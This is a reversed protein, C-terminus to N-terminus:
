RHHRGAGGCARRSGRVRAASERSAHATAIMRHEVRALSRGAPARRGRGGRWTESAGVGAPPDIGLADARRTCRPVHEPRRVPRPSASADDGAVDSIILSVVRARTAAALRGGQILSLHKRVVNMDQIPAGCALLERTVSKLDAMTLGEAPLSLLSSGGGSVLV